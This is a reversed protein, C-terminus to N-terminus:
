IMCLDISKFATAIARFRFSLLLHTHKNWKKKKLFFFFVFFFHNFANLICHCHYISRSGFVLHITSKYTIQTSKLAIQTCSQQQQQQQKKGGKKRARIPFFHNANGVECVPVIVIANSYQHRTVIVDESCCYGVVMARSVWESLIVILNFCQFRFWVYGIADKQRGSQRLGLLRSKLKLWWTIERTRETRQNHIGKNQKNQARDRRKLKMNFNCFWRVFLIM